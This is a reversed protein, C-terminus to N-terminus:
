LSFVPAPKKQANAGTSSTLSNLAPLTLLQCNPPRCQLGVGKMMEGEDGKLDNDTQTDRERDVRAKKLTVETLRKSMRM